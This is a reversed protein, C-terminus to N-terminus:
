KIVELEQGILATSNVWGTGIAKHNKDFAKVEYWPTNSKSKVSLITIRSEPTLDKMKNMAAIPDSPNLEPMLPTTKSVSYTEGSKLSQYNGFKSQSEIDRNMPYHLVIENQGMGKEKFNPYPDNSFPVVAYIKISDSVKDVDFGLGLAALKKQKASLDFQWKQNNLSIARTSKWQGITGQESFYYVSYESSNGKEWYSRDVSLSVQINDPLDTAISVDLSNGNLSYDIKFQEYTGSQETNKDRSTEKKTNNNNGCSILIGVITLLLISKKMKNM